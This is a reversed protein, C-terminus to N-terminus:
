RGVIILELRNRYDTAYASEHMSVARHWRACSMSRMLAAETLMTTLGALTSPEYKEGLGRHRGDIRLGAGKAQALM